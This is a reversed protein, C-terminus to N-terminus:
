KRTDMGRGVGDLIDAAAALVRRSNLSNFRRFLQFLSPPDGRPTELAAPLLQTIRHLQDPDIGGLLKGLVLLNRMARVSEPQAALASAQTAIEGRASLAGRLLDLAGSSHLEDLLEYASLVAAAHEVPANEIRHRLEDRADRHPTFEIPQAM